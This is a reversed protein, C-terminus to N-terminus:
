WPKLKWGLVFGIGLCWLAATGPNARAYDVVTSTLDRAVDESSLNGAQSGRRRRAGAAERTERQERGGRQVGNPPSSRTSPM